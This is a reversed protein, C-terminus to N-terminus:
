ANRSKRRRKAAATELAELQHRQPASGSTNPNAGQERVAAGGEKLLDPLKRVPAKKRLPKKTVKKKSPM